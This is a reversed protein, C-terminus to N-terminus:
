DGNSPDPVDVSCHSTGTAGSVTTTINVRIMGAQGLIPINDAMFTGDAATAVNVTTVSGAPAPTCVITATLNATPPTVFGSVRIHLGNTSMDGDLLVSDCPDHLSVLSTQAHAPMVMQGVMPPIWQEPLASIGTLVGVGVGIKKLTKRKERSEIEPKIEKQKDHDTM